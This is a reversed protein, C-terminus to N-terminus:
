RPATWRQRESWGSSRGHEDQILVSWFYSVGADYRFGSPRLDSTQASHVVGSDWASAHVGGATVVDVAYSDRAIVLRYTRQRPGDGGAPRVSWGFWPSGQGPSTPLASVTLATPADSGAPACAVPAGALVAGLLLAPVLPRM